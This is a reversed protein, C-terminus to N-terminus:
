NFLMGTTHGNVVVCYNHRDNNKELFENRWSQNVYEMNNLGGQSISGHPASIRDQGGEDGNNYSTNHNSPLHIIIKSISGDDTTFRGNDFRHGAAIGYSENSHIATASGHINVVCKGCAHIGDENEFLVCDTLCATNADNDDDFDERNHIFIGAKPYSGSIVCRTAVLKSPSSTLGYLAIGFDRCDVIAVDILEVKAGHMQIGIIHKDNNTFNHNSKNSLTMQKLVINQQHEIALGGLITTEGIGKGVFTINSCTIALTNEHDLGDAWGFQYYVDSTFLSTIQHDGKDLLVVLPNLKTYERRSSFIEIVRMAQDITAVDQPVRLQLVNNSFKDQWYAEFFTCVHRALALDRLSLLPIIHHDWVELPPADLWQNAISEDYIITKHVLKTKKAVPQGEVNDPTSSSTSSKTDMKKFEM